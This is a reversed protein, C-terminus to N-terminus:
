GFAWSLKESWFKDTTWRRRQQWRLSKVNEDEEGSGISWNWGFKACLVRQHLLNLNTWIFPGARKWPSIIVFYHFFMSLIFFFRRRWFWQALKLWVQCLADKPSPSEAKNLHLARGKELPLYNRFLLFVNVFNFFVEEGSGSLWYWGFKACLMKPHLPNSKTWIFPGTKELRLYNRFFRFYM